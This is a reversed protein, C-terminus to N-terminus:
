KVIQIGMVYVDDKTPNEKVDVIHDVSPFMIWFQTAFISFNGIM